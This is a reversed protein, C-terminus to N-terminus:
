RALTFIIPYERTNNNTNQEGQVPEVQVQLTTQTSFQLNDFGEFRVTKTEEPNIVDIVQEKRIQPDQLVILIVKVQTEQSEGSNEVLVEFALDASQEVTNDEGQVLDQGGPQVRVGVIGNGRLGGAEPGQTLRQVTQTWFTPSGFEPNQVFVSAPVAVDTVGQQELVSEAAAKFADAYVIDSAVLRQAQNALNRGSEQPDDTQGVLQLGRALGALGNVRFQMTEVLAEQQELLPGPPSLDQARRLIQEQQDRLGEVDSRLAELRIGPTTLQQNLQVGLEASETAVAGADEIYGEYAAQKQDGRCNNIVLIFIVALLIAAAILVGLRYLQPGGPPTPPRKPLRRRKGPPSGKKKPAAETTPAEDFFDFEIDTQPDAKERDFM